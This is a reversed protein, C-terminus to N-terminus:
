PISLVWMVKGFSKKKKKLFSNKTIRLLLVLLFSSLNAKSGLFPFFQGWGLTKGAGLVNDKVVYTLM